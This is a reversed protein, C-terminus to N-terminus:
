DSKEILIGLICLFTPHRNINTALWSIGNAVRSKRDEQFSCPFTDKSKSLKKLQRALFM